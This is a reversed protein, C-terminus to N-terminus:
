GVNGPGSLTEISLKQRHVIISATLFLETWITVQPKLEIAKNRRLIVQDSVWLGFVV